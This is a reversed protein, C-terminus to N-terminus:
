HSVLTNQTRYRKKAKLERLKNNVPIVSLFCTFTLIISIPLALLIKYDKNDAIQIIGFVILTIAGFIFGLNILISKFLNFRSVKTQREAYYDYSSKKM